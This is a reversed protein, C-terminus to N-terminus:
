NFSQIVPKSSDLISTIFTSTLRKFREYDASKLFIRSQFQALKWLVYLTEM